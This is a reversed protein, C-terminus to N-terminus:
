MRARVRRAPAKARLCHCRLLGFYLPALIVAHVMYRAPNVQGPLSLSVAYLFLTAVSVLYPSMEILRRCSEKMGARRLVRLVHLFLMPVVATWLAVYFPWNLVPTDMITEFLGSVVSSGISAPGVGYLTGFTDPNVDSSFVFQLLLPSRSYPAEPQSVSSTSSFSAWGSELSIFADLYVLPHRLGISLWARMFQLTGTKDKVNYGSVPDVIYPNYDEGMRDWGTVLYSDIAEREEPTVDDPHLHAVRAVQQIPVVIAAQPGGPVANVLPFVFSPFAVQAVLYTGMALGAAVVKYRAGMSVFLLLLLCLIVIYMATKKTLSCGISLLLFAISFWASKLARGSTHMTESFLLCWPIFFVLHIVDKVLIAFTIPFVPFFRVFARLACLWRRDLGRGRLYALVGALSCAALLAQVVVFAFIGADFSGTLARGAKLFWGYVLADFVPHHDWIQGAPMGFAPMGFFQALQDGTDWYIVGPFLLLLYPLWCAFTRIGDRIIAPAALEHEYADGSLWSRLTTKSAGRAMPRAPDNSSERTGWADGAGPAFLARSALNFVPQLIVALVAARVYLGPNLLSVHGEVAGHSGLALACALLIAYPSVPTLLRRLWALGVARGHQGRPKGSASLDPM